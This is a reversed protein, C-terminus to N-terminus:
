RVVLPSSFLVQTRRMLRLLYSGSALPPMPTIRCEGQVLATFGSSAVQGTTQVIEYRLPGDAVGSLRVTITGDTPNPYLTSPVDPTSSQVSVTTLNFRSVGIRGSNCGYNLTWDSSFHQGMWAFRYIQEAQWARHYQWDWTNPYSLVGGGVLIGTSNPTFELRTGGELVGLTRYLVETRTERDYVVLSGDTKPSSDVLRSVAVYRGDDSIAM